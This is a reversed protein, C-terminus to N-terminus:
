VGDKMFEEILYLRLEVGMTIDIEMMEYKICKFYRGNVHVLQCQNVENVIDFLDADDPRNFTFKILSHDYDENLAVDILEYTYEDLKVVNM